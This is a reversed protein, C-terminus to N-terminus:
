LWTNFFDIHVPPDFTHGLDKSVPTFLTDDLGLWEAWDFLLSAVQEGDDEELISDLEGWHVQLARPLIALALEHSEVLEALATLHQCYCHRDSFLIEFSILLGAVVAAKIDEEVVSTVATIFAGLSLGAMGLRDPDTEAREKLVALAVRADNIALRAFVDGDEAVERAYDHHPYTYGEFSFRGHSRIDPSLTVYGSLALALSLPTVYSDREEVLDASSSYHGHLVLVGPHQGDAKPRLVRAFAREGDFTTFEIEELILAAGNDAIVEMESIVETEPAPPAFPELALAVRHSVTASWAPHDCPHALYFNSELLRGSEQAPLEAWPDLVLCEHTDPAKVDPPDRWTDTEGGHVDPEGIISTADCAALWFSAVLAAFLALRRPALFSFRLNSM